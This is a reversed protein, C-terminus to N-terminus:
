KKESKEVEINLSKISSQNGELASKILEFDEYKWSKYSDKKLAVAVNNGKIVESNILKNIRNQKYNWISEGYNAMVFIFAFIIGLTALVCMFGYFADMIKKM